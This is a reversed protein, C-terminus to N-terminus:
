KGRESWHYTNASDYTMQFNALLDFILKQNKWKFHILSEVNRKSATQPMNFSVYLAEMRPKRLMEIAAKKSRLFRAEAGLKEIAKEKLVKFSYEGLDIGKPIPDVFGILYKEHMSIQRGYKDWNAYIHIHKTFCVYQLHRTYRPAM